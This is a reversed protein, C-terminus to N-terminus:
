LKAGLMECFAKVTIYKALNKKPLNIFKNDEITINENTIKKIYENNPVGVFVFIRKYAERGRAGYRNKSYPLMGRIVRRVFNDPRKMLFPGKKPNGWNRIRLKAVAAKRLYAKSGSILAKDANVIIVKEGLLAKKAAYSAMRGLVQGEANILIM